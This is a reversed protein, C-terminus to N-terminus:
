KKNLYYKNLLDTLYPVPSREYRDTRCPVPRYKTQIISPDSRTNMSPPIVEDAPYFWNEYKPHKEARKAFNLCLKSRRESLKDVELTSVADNYSQYEDGLIM